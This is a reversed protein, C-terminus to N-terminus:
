APLVLKYPVGGNITVMFSNAGDRVIVARFKNPGTVVASGGTPTWNSFAFDVRIDPGYGWSYSGNLTGGINSFSADFTRPGDSFTCNGVGAVFACSQTGAYTTTSGNTNSVRLNYTATEAFNDGNSFGSFSVTVVGDAVQGKQQVCNSFTAAYPTGLKLSTLDSPLDVTLSGGLPCVLTPKIVGGAASGFVGGTLGLWQVLSTSNPVRQASTISAQAESALATAVVRSDALTQAAPADTAGGGGCAALVAGLGTAALAFLRRHPM